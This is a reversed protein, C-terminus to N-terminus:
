SSIEAYILSLRKSIKELAHHRVVWDRNKQGIEEWRSRNEILWTISEVIDEETFAHRFPPFEPYSSDNEILSTVVPKACAAAELSVLEVMYPSFQGMVLDAANYYDAIRSHEIPPLFYVRKLRLEEILGLMRELEPSYKQDRVLHLSVPYKDQLQRFAYFLKENGKIKQFRAPHFLKITGEDALKVPSPGPKFKEVDIPNPLFVSKEAPIGLYKLNNLLDPTSVIIKRAHRMSRRLLRGIISNEAASERLDSGHFHSVTLRNLLMLPINYLSHAHFIDCDRYRTLLSAALRAHTLARLSSRIVEVGPEDAPFRDGPKPMVLLNAELGLARLGRNLNLPVGAIDGIQIVKM